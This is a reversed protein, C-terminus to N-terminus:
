PPPATGLIEASLTSMLQAGLDGIRSAAGVDLTTLRPDAAMQGVFTFTDTDIEGFIKATHALRELPSLSPPADLKTLEEALQWALARRPANVGDGGPATPASVGSEAFGTLQTFQSTCGLLDNPTVRLLACIRAILGLDPEVEAREYRTYRNEDIELAKAFSRATPFGRPM